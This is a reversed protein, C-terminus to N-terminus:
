EELNVRVEETLAIQSVPVRSVPESGRAIAHLGKELVVGIAAGALSAGASQIGTAGSLWVFAFALGPAMFKCGPQLALASKGVHTAVPHLVEGIARLYARLAEESAQVANVDKSRGLQAFAATFDNRQSLRRIRELQKPSLAIIADADVFTLAEKPIGLTTPLVEYGAPHFGDYFDVPMLVKLNRGLIKSAWKAKLTNSVYDMGMLFEHAFYRHRTLYPTIIDAFQTQLHRQRAPKDRRFYGFMAYLLNRGYGQELPRDKIREVCERLADRPTRLDAANRDTFIVDSMEKLSHARDLRLDITGYDIRDSFIDDCRAAIDLALEKSVQATASEDSEWDRQVLARFTRPWRDDWYLRLPSTSSRILSNADGAGLRALVQLTLRNDTLFNPPIFVNEYFLAYFNMWFALERPGYRGRALLSHKGYYRSPRDNILEEDLHMLFADM